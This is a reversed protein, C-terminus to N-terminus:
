LKKTKSKLKGIIAGLVFGLAITTAYSLTLFCYRFVAFGQQPSDVNFLSHCKLVLSNALFYAPLIIIGQLIDFIFNLEIASSIFSLMTLSISILPYTIAGIIAYRLWLPQLKFLKFNM